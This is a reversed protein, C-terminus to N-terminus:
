AIEKGRAFSPNPPLKSRLNGRVTAARYGTVPWYCYCYCRLQGVSLSSAEVERSAGGRTRTGGIRRTPFQRKEENRSPPRKSGVIKLFKKRFNNELSYCSYRGTAFLIIDTIPSQISSSAVRLM